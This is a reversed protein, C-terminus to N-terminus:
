VEMWELEAVVWPKQDDHFLGERINGGVLREIVAPDRSSCYDAFFCPKNFSFCTEGNTARPWWQGKYYRSIRGIDESLGRFWDYVHDDTKTFPYMAVKPELTDIYASLYSVKFESIKKGLIHELVIGYPVTQEDYEYRVSYDTINMRTTKIDCVLYVDDVKDYLIADIFGVFWVPIPMPSNTIKIAFPVEIAPLVPNGYLQTKIHILEYRDGIPSRILEMLTIYCAELSRNYHNEPRSFEMDHPYAMLFAMIAENEDKHILYHQFGVHLAKGCEAAFMEERRDGDGFMKGFELLRTCRRFSSRASHSLVLRLVPYQYGTRMDTKIM